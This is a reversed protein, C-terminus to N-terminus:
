QGVSATRQEAGPFVNRKCIKAEVKQPAAAQTAGAFMALTLLSPALLKKLTRTQMCNM